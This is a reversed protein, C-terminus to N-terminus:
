QGLRLYCIPITSHEISCTKLVKDCMQSEALSTELYNVDDDHYEM